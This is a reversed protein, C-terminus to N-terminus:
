ALEPSTVPIYSIFCLPFSIRGDKHVHKYSIILYRPDIPSLDMSIDDIEVDEEVDEVVVELKDKDIKCTMLGNTKSRSLKFKRFQTSVDESISCTSAMNIHELDFKEGM